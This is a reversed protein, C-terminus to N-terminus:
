AIASARRVSNSCAETSRSDLGRLDGWTRADANAVVAQVYATKGILLKARAALATSPYSSPGNVGSAALESSVGFPPGILLGASDTAQFEDNIDYIGAKISFRGVITQELWAEYLRMRRRGVENNNIGELSNVAKNPGQGATEQVSFYAKGGKWGLAEDLDFGGTFEILHLYRATQDGGGSVRAVVDGTYNMGLTVPSEARATVSALMAFAAFAAGM